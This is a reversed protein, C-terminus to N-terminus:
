EEWDPEAAVSILTRFVIASVENDPAVCRPFSGVIVKVASSTFLRRSFVYNILPQCKFSKIATELATTPIGFSDARYRFAVIGLNRYGGQAAGFVVLSQGNQLVKPAIPTM